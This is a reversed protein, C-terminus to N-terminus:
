PPPIPDRLPRVQQGARFDAFFWFTSYRIELSETSNKREKKKSKKKLKRKGNNAQKSAQKGAKRKKQKM